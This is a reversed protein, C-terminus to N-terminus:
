SFSGERLLEILEKEDLLGYDEVVSQLMKVRRYSPRVYDCPMFKDTIIGFGREKVLATIENIFHFDKETYTIIETFMREGYEREFKRDAVVLLEQMKVFNMYYREDGTEEAREISLNVLFMAVDLVYAM